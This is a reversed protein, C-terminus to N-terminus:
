LRAPSIAGLPGRLEEMAEDIERKAMNVKCAFKAAAPTAMGGSAAQAYLPTGLIRELDRCARQLSTQSVGLSRAAQAISGDGVVALLSRIQLWSIRSAMRPISLPSGPVGLEGIAEEIQAFFRQTRRHLIIGFENLYSGSARRKLLTVGVREELKAIAQTVAPQSLHCEESARRVGRLHGVSEFVKLHRISALMHWQQSAMDNM